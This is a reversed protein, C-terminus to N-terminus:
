LKASPKVLDQTVSKVEASLADRNKWQSSIKAITAKVEANNAEEVGTIVTELLDQKQNKKKTAVRAWWGLGASLAALGWEVFPASPTPNFKTNLSRAGDIGKDWVPNVDVTIQKSWNTILKAPTVVEVVGAAQLIEGSATVQAPIEVLNTTAPLSIVTPVDNTQTIFPATKGGFKEKLTGCGCLLLASLAIILTKM